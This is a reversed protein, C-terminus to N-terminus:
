IGLIHSYAEDGSIADVKTHAEALQNSLLRGVALKAVKAGFKRVNTLEVPFNLIAQLHQSETKSQFFSELGLKNATAYITPIDITTQDNEEMITKFVKYTIANSDLTFSNENLIDCVDYYADSNYRAIGALVAREAVIDSPM